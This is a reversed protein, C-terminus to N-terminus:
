SSQKDSIYAGVLGAVLVAIYFQGAIAQLYVLSRGASTMPTIDGYGLTTLTVFSFYFWDNHWGTTKTLEIGKFSGPVVLELFAYALAWLIGLLLYVCIAGVLRNMNLETGFVVQKLTYSVSVLLFTFLSLLSAAQLLTASKGVAVINLLIGFAALVMGITFYRGGGNLSRAGVIMLVSFFFARVIDPDLFNFDQALPVAVLLLLLASLLYFFDTRGGDHDKWKKRM